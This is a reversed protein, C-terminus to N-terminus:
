GTVANVLTFDSAGSSITVAGSAGNITGFNITDSPNDTGSNTGATVAFDDSSVLSSGQTVLLPTGNGEMLVATGNAPTVTTNNLVEIEVGNFNGDGIATTFNGGDDCEITQDNANATGCAAYSLTPASLSLLAVGSLLSLIFKSQNKM